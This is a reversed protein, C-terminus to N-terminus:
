RRNFEPSALLLAFGEWRDPAASVVFRTTESLTTGLTLEAFDRPDLGGSRALRRGIASAFQLRGALGQATIWDGAAEPWGDPGPPKFLIQGMGQMARLMQRGRKAPDKPLVSSDGVARLTSVVLEVPRKVKRGPHKWAAPHDLMASAVQFLDGETKTWVGAIHTILDPDPEDSVFHVALKRALHRATSPHRALDELLEDVHEAMAPDGGYQRGLVTEAGPEAWNKKFRFQLSRRRTGFGTLLEAFERVDNQTYGAGVGLTHLELMERALNENLGRGSRKGVKSNPGISVAQDLYALMAPARVVAKLMDAFHGIVHPRIADDEYAGAFYFRRLNRTGVTFHDAWFSAMREYFGCPSYARREIRAAIDELGRRRAVGNLEKRLAKDGKSALFEDLLTLRATTSEVESARQRGTRLAELLDEAGSPATEGPRLGYGFRIAAIETASSM